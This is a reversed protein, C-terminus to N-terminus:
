TPVSDDSQVENTIEPYVEKMFDNYDARGKFLEDWITFHELPTEFVEKGAAAAVECAEEYILTGGMRDVMDSLILIKEALYVRAFKKDHKAISRTNSILDALKMELVKDCGRLIHERDLRKRVVRNGDEKRSVDTIGWVLTSVTQGFVQAIHQRTVSTDEVVDHLLIAAQQAHCPDCYTLLIQLAEEPHHHYDEGTYKRKQGVGAHAAICFARAMDVVTFERPPQNRM